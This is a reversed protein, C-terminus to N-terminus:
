PPKRDHARLHTISAFLSPQRHGVLGWSRAVGIVLSVLLLHSIETQLAANHPAILLGIGSLIELGFTLLLLAMLGIQGNRLRAPLRGALLSRVAAATFVM